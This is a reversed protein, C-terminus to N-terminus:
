LLLEITASPRQHDGLRFCSSSPSLSSFVYTELRRPINRTYVSFIRHKWKKKLSGGFASDDWEFWFSLYVSRPKQRWSRPVNAILNYYRNQNRDVAQEDRVNTKSFSEVVNPLPWQLEPFSFIRRSSIKWSPGVVVRPPEMRPREMRPCEM